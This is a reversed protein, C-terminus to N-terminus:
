VSAVTVYPAIFSKAENIPIAFGIDQADSSIATNIGIVGGTAVDILPGGSNGPNIPADTQLLGSLSEGGNIANEDSATVSRNLGSIIGSVVSNQYQGLANGIAVVSGGVVEQHSDGLTVTPLNSGDIKILALDETTNATIVRASYQKGAQTTVTMTGGGIPLVHNNTLIYGSSTLIMGTGAGQQTVPGGLFSYSSSQTTIDVVAPAVGNVVSPILSAANQSTLTANARPTLVTVVNSTNSKHARQEVYAGAAGSAGSLILVAAAAFYLQKRQM